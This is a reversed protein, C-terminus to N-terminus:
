PSVFSRPSFGGLILVKRRKNGDKHDKVGAWAKLREGTFASSFDGREGSDRPELRANGGTCGCTHLFTNGM